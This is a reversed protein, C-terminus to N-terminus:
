MAALERRAKALLPNDGGTLRAQDLLSRAAVPNQRSAVLAMGLAQATVPSAPQLRWAAQASALAAASEGSRLQALSLDALLRADRGGGRQVLNELLVRSGAWDGAMARQGAALRAALRNGPYASLYRATAAGAEAARGQRELAQAMRLVLLDAYRIQAAAVYRSLAADSRGLALQVDGALWQADASGPHARLATEAVQEAKIRDGGALLSRVLPVAVGVSGPATMWRGEWGVEGPYPLPTVLPEGRAAARDLWRAAAQRNGRDEEARGMLTLLYAPADSREAVSDFRQLLVDGQGSEYLARALLLRIKYNVPQRAILTDLQGVALNPNGAELELIAKLELTASTDPWRRGAKAVLAHGLRYDGARAALLAQLFLARPEDAPLKRLAELMAGAQGLEGLTAAEDLGIGLSNPSQALAQRYYDLAAEPGARDRELEGRFALAAPNDPALKLAHGSAGLAQWQEGGAYRLRGIDVWLDSNKPAITLAKDFASGAAALNGLRQEAEGLLRWGALEEGRAFEGPALWHRADDLRGQALLARGLAVAVARRGAGAKLATNLHFEAGVADGSAQSSAARELLRRIEAPDAASRVSSALALAALAIGLQWRRGQM